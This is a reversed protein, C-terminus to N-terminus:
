PQQAIAKLVAFASFPCGCSGLLSVCIFIPIEKADHGVIEVKRQKSSSRNHGKVFKRLLYTDLPFSHSNNSSLRLFTKTTYTCTNKSIEKYTVKWISQTDTDTDARSTCVGYSTIANHTMYESCRHTINFLCQICKTRANHCFIIKNSSIQTIWKVLCLQTFHFPYQAVICEDAQM